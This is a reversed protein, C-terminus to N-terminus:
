GETEESVEAFAGTAEYEVEGGKKGINLFPSKVEKGDVVEKVKIKPDTASPVWNTAMSVRFQAALLEEVPLGAESDIIDALGGSVPIFIERGANKILLNYNENIVVIDVENEDLDLEAAIQHLTKGNMLKQMDADRSAFLQVKVKPAAFKQALKAM